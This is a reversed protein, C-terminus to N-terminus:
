QNCGKHEIKLWAKINIRQQAERSKMKLEHRLIDRTKDTSIKDFLGVAAQIVDMCEEIINDTNGGDFAESLEMLEEFVKDLQEDPTTQLDLLPIRFM